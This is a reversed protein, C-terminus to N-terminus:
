QKRLCLTYFNWRRDLSLVGLDKTRINSLRLKKKIDGKPTGQQLVYGIGGM